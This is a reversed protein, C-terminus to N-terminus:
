DPNVAVPLYYTIYNRSQGQSSMTNLVHFVVAKKEVMCMIVASPSVAHSLLMSRFSKISLAEELWIDPRQVELGEQVPHSLNVFKTNVSVMDTTVGVTMEGDMNARVTIYESLNKMRDVALLITKLPPLIITVEPPNLNPEIVTAFEEKPIIEVPVDQVVDFSGGDRTQVTLFPASNIKTLKFHTETANLGSKLARDLHDLSLRFHIHNNNISQVTFEEFMKSMGNGTFLMSGGKDLAQIVIIQFIEEDFHITAQEGVARCTTVLETPFPSDPTTARAPPRAPPPRPASFTPHCPGFLPEDSPPPLFSAPSSGFVFFESSLSVVRENVMRARFRM